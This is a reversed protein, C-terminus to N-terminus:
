VIGSNCLLLYSVNVFSVTNSNLPCGLNRSAESEECRIHCIKAAGAKSHKVPLNSLPLPLYLGDIYNM